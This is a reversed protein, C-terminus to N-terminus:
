VSTLRFLLGENYGLICFVVRGLLGVGDTPRLLLAAVPCDFSPWLWVQVEYSCSKDLIAKCM